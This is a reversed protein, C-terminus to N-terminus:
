NPPGLLHEGGERRYEDEAERVLGEVRGVIQNFRSIGRLPDLWPDCLLIQLCHFGRDVVKELVELALEPAAVRALGRTVLYLGEPDDFTRGAALKQSVEICEERRREIALRIQRMLMLMVAPLPRQESELYGAM